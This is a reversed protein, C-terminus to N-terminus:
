IHGPTDDESKEQRSDRRSLYEESDTEGAGDCRCVCCVRVCRCM